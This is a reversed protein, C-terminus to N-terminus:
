AEEEEGDEAEAEEENEAEAEEENGAGDEGNEAEAEEENGAEAEDEPHFHEALKFIGREHCRVIKENGTVECLDFEELVKVFPEDLRGVEFTPGDEPNFYAVVDDFTTITEEYDDTFYMLSIYKQLNDKIRTIVNWIRNEINFLENRRENSVILTTSKEGSDKEGQEDEDWQYEFGFLKAFQAFVNDKESEGPPLMFYEPLSSANRVYQNCYRCTLHLVLEYFQRTMRARADNRVDDLNEIAAEASEVKCEEVKQNIKRLKEVNKIFEPKAPPEKRPGTKLQSELWKLYEQLQSFYECCKQIAEYFSDYRNLVDRMHTPLAELILIDDVSRATDIMAQTRHEITDRWEHFANLIEATSAASM